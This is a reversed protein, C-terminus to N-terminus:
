AAKGVRLFLVELALKLNANGAIARRVAAIARLLAEIEEVALRGAAGTILDIKDYNIVSTSDAGARYLLVDRFFLYLLSVTEFIEEKYRGELFAEDAETVAGTRDKLAAEEAKRASKFEELLEEVFKVAGTVTMFQKSAIGSLIRDRRDRYRGSILTELRGIRGGSLVAFLTRDKEPLNYRNRLVEEISKVPLPQFEVTQCRSRITPLIADKYASTLIIVTDAPPEELTKLLANGSAPHLTDVESVIFVKRRGEYPMLYANKTLERVLEIRISRSAGAPGYWKVDPHSDADIMRCSECSDCGDPDNKLCNLAKAFQAAALRKGIGSPGSFLYAHGVRKSSVANKLQAVVNQHGIVDKFSMRIRYRM